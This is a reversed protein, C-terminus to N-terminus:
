GYGPRGFEGPTGAGRHNEYTRVGGGLPYGANRLADFIKQRHADTMPQAPGFHLCGELTRAVHQWQPPLDDFAVLASM